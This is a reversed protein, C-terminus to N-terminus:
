NVSNLAQLYVVNGPSRTNLLFRNGHLYLTWEGELNIDNRHIPLKPMDCRRQRKLITVCSPYEPMLVRDAEKVVLTSTSRVTDFTQRLPQCPAARLKQRMDSIAKGRLTRQTEPEHNHSTPGFLISPTSGDDKFLSTTMSGPCAARKM